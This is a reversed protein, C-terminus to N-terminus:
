REGLVREMEKKLEVEEERSFDSEVGLLARIGEVSKESLYVALKASALCLLEEYNLLTAAKVMMVTTAEDWDEIFCRDYPDLYESLPLVMPRPIERMVNRGPLGVVAEGGCGSGGNNSGENAKKNDRIPPQYNFRYTMHACIRQLLDSTFYPFPLEIAPINTVGSSSTGGTTTTTTTNEAAVVQGFSAKNGQDKTVGVIIEM